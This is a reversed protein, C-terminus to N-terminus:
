ESHESQTKKKKFFTNFVGGRNPLLILNRLLKIQAPDMPYIFNWDKADAEAYYSFAAETMLQSKYRDVKASDPSIKANITIVRTARIVTHDQILM